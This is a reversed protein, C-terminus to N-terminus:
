LIRAQLDDTVATETDVPETNKECAKTDNTNEACSSYDETKTPKTKTPETSEGSNTEM